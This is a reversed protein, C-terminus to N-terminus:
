KACTSGGNHTKDEVVENAIHEKARQRERSKSPCSESCVSCENHPHIRGGCRKRKGYQLM